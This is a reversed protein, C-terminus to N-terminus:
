MAYIYYQYYTINCFNYLKHFTVITITKCSLLIKPTTLSDITYLVYLYGTIKKAILLM